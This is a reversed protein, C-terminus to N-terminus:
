NTEASPRNTPTRDLVGALDLGFTWHPDSSMEGWGVAGEATELRVIVHQNAVGTQRPTTIPFLEVRDIKM